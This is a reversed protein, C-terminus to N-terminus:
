EEEVYDEGDYASQVQAETLPLHGFDAVTLSALEEEITSRAISEVTLLKAEELVFGEPKPRYRPRIQIHDITNAGDYAFVDIAKAKSTLFPPVKAKGDEVGIRHPEEDHPWYFHCEITGDPVEVWRDNDWCWFEGGLLKLKNSM